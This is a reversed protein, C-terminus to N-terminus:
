AFQEINEMDLLEKHDKELYTMMWGKNRPLIMDKGAKLEM